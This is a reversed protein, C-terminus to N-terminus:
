SVGPAGLVGNFVNQASDQVGHQRTFDRFHPSWGPRAPPTSWKSYVEVSFPTVVVDHLYEWAKREKRETFSRLQGQRKYKNSMQKGYCDEVGLGDAAAVIEEM